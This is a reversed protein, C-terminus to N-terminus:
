KAENVDVGVDSWKKAEGIYIKSIQDKTLSEVPNSKNVVVAIGDTALVYGTLAEAEAAKLERSAMGLDYTGNMAGNMGSTSDNYGLKIKSAAVGSATCYAAVLKEMLPHVSSSGNIVLEETPATEPKTYAQTSEPGIYGESEIITANDNDAKYAVNFPRSLKYTGNKINEVSAQVGEYPVAKIDDTLSGLSVYGIASKNDKVKQIVVSTSNAVEASTTTRDVKEGDVEAQVGTLEVFAGRTGSGDERTIVSITDSMAEESCGVAAFGIGCALAVTLIALLLKKM